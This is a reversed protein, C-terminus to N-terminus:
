LNWSIINIITILNMKQHILLDIKMFLFQDLKQEM